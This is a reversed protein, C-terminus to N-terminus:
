IASSEYSVKEDTSTSENFLNKIIINQNEPEDFSFNLEEKRLRNGEDLFKFLEDQNGLDENVKALAFCLYAKDSKSIKNSTFFLLM